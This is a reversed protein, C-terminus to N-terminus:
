SRNAIEKGVLMGDDTMLFEAFSDMLKIGVPAQYVQEKNDVWLISRTRPDKQIIGEELARLGLFKMKVYEDEFIIPNKGSDDMFYLYDNDIQRYIAAKLEATTMSNGVNRSELVSVTAQLDYIGDEEKAKVRVLNKLELKAEEIDVFEQNNSEEDVIEFWTGGNAVNQPHADLFKKTILQKPQTIEFVGHTFIVAEVYPKEAQEDVFISKENPCHRIARNYGKDKDYIILKKNRGTKILTSEGFRDNALRYIVPKFSNSKKM